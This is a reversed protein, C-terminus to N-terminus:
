SEPDPDQIQLRLKSVIGDWIQEIDEEIIMLAQAMVRDPVGDPYRELLKVLSYDFKKINIFDPDERIKALVHETTLPILPNAM